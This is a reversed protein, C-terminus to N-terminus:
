PAADRWQEGATANRQASDGGAWAPEGGSAPEGEGAQGSWASPAPPAAPLLGQALAIRRFHTALM